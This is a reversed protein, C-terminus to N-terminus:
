LLVREKHFNAHLFLAFMRDVRNDGLLALTMARNVKTVANHLATLSQGDEETRANVEIGPQSLLYRVVQIHGQFSSMHLPTRGFEGKANLRLRRDGPASLKHDLLLEIVKRHGRQAAWHLSAYKGKVFYLPAGKNLLFQIVQFDGQYAAYDLPTFGKQDRKLVGEKEAFQQVKQLNGLFCAHFINTPEDSRMSNLRQRLAQITPQIQLSLVNYDMAHNAQLGHVSEYEEMNAGACDELQQFLRVLDVGPELNYNQRHFDLREDLKSTFYNMVLEHTRETIPVLEEKYMVQDREDLFNKFNNIYRDRLANVEVLFDYTVTRFDRESEPTMLLIKLVNLKITVVEYDLGSGLRKKYELNDIVSLIAVTPKETEMIRASLANIEWREYVPLLM